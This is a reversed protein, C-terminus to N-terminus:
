PSSREDDSWGASDPPTDTGSSGFGAPARAEGLAEALEVRDDFPHVVGDVVQGTEHGKGAVLVVDGPGCGSVAHRIAAARGPVEVVSAPEAASAAGARVAQRIVAPDESRPNDDTVVVVDAHESAARGMLPRKGADRDGGAGLVVVLRGSTHPRLTELAAAVADPTHAYDVVGLPGPGVRVPEMRGSVPPAEHLGRAVQSAPVGCRLCLVAALAANSVNFVGAMPVELRLSEEEPGRLVFSSGLGDVLPRVDEVWWQELAPRAATPGESPHTRLAAVPVGASEALRRGWADDVCVVGAHAHGPTFLAAKARFYSEMDGHFDLHDQSLQTFGAQDFELGSVRGLALGHSSVEMACADVGQERMVALLAHVDTAEPTTRVSPVVQGGIRTEITGILGTTRGGATLIADVLACTTTKGNTGTVGVMLLDRAPHGYVAASIDGLRARPDDVVVVPADPSAPEPLDAMIAAGEADTVVVAAGRSLAQTAFRAGHTHEGALAAYLDGDRVARSDHTVGSVWVEAVSRASDWGPAGENLVAHLRVPAVHEPRLAAVESM